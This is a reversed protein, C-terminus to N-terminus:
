EEFALVSVVYNSRSRNGFCSREGELIDLELVESLAELTNSMFHCNDNGRLRVERVEALRPAANNKTMTPAVFRASVYAPGAYGLNHDFGGSCSVRINEAGLSKLLSKTDSEVSDCNYYIRDGAGLFTDLTYSVKFREPYAYEAATAISGIGLLAILVLLRNVM